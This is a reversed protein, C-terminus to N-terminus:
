MNSTLRSKSHSAPPCQHQRHTTVPRAEPKPKSTQSPAGKRKKGPQHPHLQEQTLQKPQLAGTYYVDCVGRSCCMAVGAPLQGQISQVLEPRFIKRQAWYSLVQYRIQTIPHPVSPIVKHVINITEQTVENGTAIQRAINPVVPEFAQVVQKMRRCAESRNM